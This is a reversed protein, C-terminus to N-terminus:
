RAGKKKTKKATKKAAAKAARPQKPILQGSPQSRISLRAARSALRRPEGAALAATKIEGLSPVPATDADPIPQEPLTYDVVDCDPFTSSSRQLFLLTDVVERRTPFMTAENPHRAVTVSIGDPAVHVVGYGGTKEHKILWGYTVQKDGHTQPFLSLPFLPRL